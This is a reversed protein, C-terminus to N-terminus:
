NSTNRNLEFETEALKSDLTKYGFPRRQPLLSLINLPCQILWPQVNPMPSAMFQCNISARITNSSGNQWIESKKSLSLTNSHARSILVSVRTSYVHNYKLLIVPDKAIILSCQIKPMYKICLKWKVSLIAISLSSILFCLYRLYRTTIM